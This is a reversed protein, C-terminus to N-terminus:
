RSFFNKSLEILGEGINYAPFIRFFPQLTAIMDEFGELQTLIIYVLVTVFGTIFFGGLISIQATTYNTFYRSLNYAFPLGSLGYGFILLFTCLASVPEGVFVEASGSGYIFFVVVVLITFVLWTAMDWLYNAFWYALLDVGSVLQLHKSKCAREKVLFIIYASPAYCMPMLVFLTALMSLQAKVELSGAETLPLPHNISVIRADLNNTCNKYQYEMYGQYTAPLSHMASTNFLFSVEPFINKKKTEVGEPLYYAIYEYTSNFDEEGGFDVNIVGGLTQELLQEIERLTVGTLILQGTPSPLVSQGKYLLNNIIFIPEPFLIIKVSDIDVRERQMDELIITIDRVLLSEEVLDITLGQVSVTYTADLDGSGGTNRDIIDFLDSVTEARFFGSLAFTLATAIGSAQNGGALEDVLYDRIYEMDIPTDPDVNPFSYVIDAVDKLDFTLSYLPAASGSDYEIIGNDGVTEPDFNLVIDEVQTWNINLNMTIADNFHYAGFRWYHSSHDHYSDLLYHSMETSNLLDPKYELRVEPYEYQFGADMFDFVDSMSQNDNPGMRGSVVADSNAIRTAGHYYDLSIELAPEVAFFDFTLCLLAVAVGIAPLLVQYFIGRKDRKQVTWRKGMLIGIQSFRGVQHFEACENQVRGLMKISETQRRSLTEGNTSGLLRTSTQRSPSVAASPMEISIERPTTDELEADKEDALRLFVEELTTNSVGYGGIGLKMRTDNDNEITHFLKPFHIESGPPFRYVLERASRRLLEVDPIYESLFITIDQIRQEMKLNETQLQEPSLSINGEEQDVGTVARDIVMTLNYGVGFREKLFLGTGYCQLKGSKLVAIRDALLEAEEMFHTTLMLVRGKKKKRLLDWTARRTHPDMGSTPEDFLVFKPDGCLAMAVCLKRKMGGSLSMSYTHLKDELEVERAKAVISEHTPQGGKVSEFFRIHEYVTLTDFLVNHQPCIGMRQRLQDLDKRISKNYIICDGSSPPFLGTLVSMTTSKGAGNHGLLCTIQDEYLNLSLNNVAPKMGKKYRKVLSQVRVQPSESDDIRQVNKMSCQHQGDEDLEDDGLYDHDKGLGFMRRWYGPTLCFYFKRRVGFQSPLVQELYWALVIYLVSDILLMTLSTGFDYGGSSMNWWQVGVEAAEFDTLTEAGFAFATCPLVSALMKEYRAQDTSTALFIYRPLLTAFFAMPGVISAVKANSIFSAVFFTFSIISLAFAMIYIYLLVFNSNQAIGAALMGTVFLSIIMFFGVTFVVWSLWHAWQKVGLIFLTQKMRSEKEEVISKVLRSIPFLYAMALAIGMLFGIAQYFENQDYAATPMPIAWIDNEGPIWCNGDNARSLFFENVTRQWSPYGSSLYYMYYNKFGVAATAIYFRPKPTVTDNM